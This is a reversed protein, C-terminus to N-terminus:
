YFRTKARKNRYFERMIAGQRVQRKTPKRKNYRTSRVQLVKRSAQVRKNFRIILRENSEKDNRWVSIHM